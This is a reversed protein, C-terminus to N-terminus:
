HLHDLDSAPGVQGQMRPHFLLKTADDPMFFADHSTEINAVGSPKSACWDQAPIITSRQYNNLTTGRRTANVDLDEDPKLRRPWFAMSQGTLKVPHNSELESLTEHDHHMEDVHNM